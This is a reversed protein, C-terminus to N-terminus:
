VGGARRRPHPFVPAKKLYLWLAEWHIAGIVKATMWPHALLLQHLSHATWPRRSLKLTADFFAQGSDLSDMHVVLKEGPPTVTFTYDL